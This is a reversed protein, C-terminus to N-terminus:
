HKTEMRVTYPHRSGFAGCQVLVAITGEELRQVLPHFGNGGFAARGFERFQEAAAPIDYVERPDQDFGDITAAIYTSRPLRRVALKFSAAAKRADQPRMAGPAGICMVIMDPPDSAMADLMAEFDEHLGLILDPKDTM